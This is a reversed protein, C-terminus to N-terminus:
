CNRYIMIPTDACTPLRAQLEYIKDIEIVHESRGGQADKSRLGSHHGSLHGSNRSSNLEVGNGSLPPQLPAGIAVLLGKSINLGGEVLVCSGQLTHITHLTNLANHATTAVVVLDDHSERSILPSGPYSSLLRSNEHNSDRRRVDGNDVYIILLLALLEGRLSLEEGSHLGDRTHGLHLGLGVGQHGHGQLDLQLTWM